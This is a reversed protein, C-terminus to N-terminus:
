RTAAWPQVNLIKTHDVKRIIDDPGNASVVFVVGSGYDHQVTPITNMPNFAGGFSFCTSASLAQSLETHRDEDKKVCTLIGV